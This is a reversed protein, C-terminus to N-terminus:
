KRDLVALGVSIFSNWELLDKEVQVKRLFIAKSKFIYSEKYM